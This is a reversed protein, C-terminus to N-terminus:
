VCRAEQQYARRNARQLVSRSTQMLDVMSKSRDVVFPGRSRPGVASIRRGKWVRIQNRSCEHAHLIRSQDATNRSLRPPQNTMKATGNHRGVLRVVPRFTAKPAGATKRGYCMSRDSVSAEAVGLSSEEHGRFDTRDPRTRDQNSGVQGVQGSRVSRVQRERTKQPGVRRSCGECEGFGQPLKKCRCGGERSARQNRAGLPLRFVTQGRM